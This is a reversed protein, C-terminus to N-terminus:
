QVHIGRSRIIQGWMASEETRMRQFEEGTSGIPIFGSNDLWERREPARLWAVVATRLRDLIAAPTGAPALLGYATSSQFGPLGSGDLTPLAPFQPSTQKSTVAIPRVNGSQVLMLATTTDAFNVQVEGSLLAQAAPGGGRYPVHIMSLGTMSMFLEAALHSTFGIGASSFTVKDPNRRLHDMLSPLDTVPLTRHVCLVQPTSALLSIPAFSADPDYTLQYLHPAIAYSSNTSALLTYGDPRARAVQGHGITGGAGPRNDIVFGQGFLGTLHQALPRMLTDTSGGPALPLVITVPRQPWADQGAATRTLALAPAALLATLIRRRAPAHM